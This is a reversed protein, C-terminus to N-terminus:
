FQTIFRSLYFLYNVLAVVNLTTILDTANNPSNEDLYWLRLHKFSVTNNNNWTINVKEKSEKFRYPGVQEFRPKISTNYIDEPNTWNFFYFDMKVPLPTKKWIDFVYSNPKLTMVEKLITNFILNDCFFLM